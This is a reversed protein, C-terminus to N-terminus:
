IILVLKPLHARRTSSENQLLVMFQVTSKLVMILVLKEEDSDYINLM